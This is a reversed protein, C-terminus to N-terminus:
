PIDQALGVYSSAYSPCCPIWILVATILFSHILNQFLPTRFLILYASILYIENKRITAPSHGTRRCEPHAHGSLCALLPHDDVVGVYVVGQWGVVGVVILMEAVM